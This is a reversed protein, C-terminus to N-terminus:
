GPVGCFDVKWFDINLPKKLIRQGKDMVGEIKLTVECESPKFLTVKSFVCHIVTPKISQEIIVDTCHPMQIIKNENNTVDFNYLYVVIPLNEDGSRELEICKSQNYEFLLPLEILIANEDDIFKYLKNFLCGGSPYNSFKSINQTCNSGINKVGETSKNTKCSLLLFFVNLFFLIYIRM